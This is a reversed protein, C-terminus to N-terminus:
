SYFSFLKLFSYFVPIIQSWGLKLYIKFVVDEWSYFKFCHKSTQCLLFGLYFFLFFYKSFIVSVYCKNKKWKKKRKFRQCLQSGSGQLIMYNILYISFPDKGNKFSLIDNLALIDNINELSHQMRKHKTNTNFVVSIITKHLKIKRNWFIVTSARFLSFHITFDLNM